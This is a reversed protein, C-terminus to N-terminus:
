CNDSPPLTLPLLNEEINQGVNRPYHKRHDYHFPKFTFKSGKTDHM